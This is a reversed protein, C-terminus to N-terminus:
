QGHRLSADPGTTGMGTGFKLVHGNNIGVNMYNAPNSNDADNQGSLWYDFLNITTGPPTVGAIISPDNSNAARLLNGSRVQQTTNSAEEKVPKLTHDETHLDNTDNEADPTSGATVTEDANDKSEQAPDENTHDTLTDDSTDISTQDEIIDEKFNEDTQPTEQQEESNSSDQPDNSNLNLGDTLFVDTEEESVINNQTIDKLDDASVISAMNLVLIASLM